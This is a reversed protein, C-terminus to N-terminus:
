LIVFYNSQKELAQELSYDNIQATSSTNDDVFQSFFDPSSNCDEKDEHNNTQIDSEKKVKRNQQKEERAFVIEM